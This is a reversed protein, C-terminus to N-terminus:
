RMQQWMSRRGGLHLALFLLAVFVFPLAALHPEMGCMLNIVTMALITLTFGYYGLRQWLIIAAIWMLNLAGCLAQLGLAWVPEDMQALRLAMREDTIAYLNVCVQLSFLLALLSLFMLVLPQHKREPQYNIQDFPDQSWM